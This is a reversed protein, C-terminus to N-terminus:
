LYYLYICICFLWAALLFIWLLRPFTHAVFYVYYAESVANFSLWDACLKRALATRIPEDNNIRLGREPMIGIATLFGKKPAVGALIAKSTQLLSTNLENSDTM